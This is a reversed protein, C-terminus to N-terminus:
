EWNGENNTAETLSGVKIGDFNTIKEREDIYNIILQQDLGNLITDFLAYAEFVKVKVGSATAVEGAGLTFKSKDTFPIYTIEEVSYDKIKWLSDKVSRKSTSTKILGLKLGEEESYVDPDYGPLFDKKVLEFSDQKVFKILKDFNDAYEGYKDKFAVQVTRIDKLREIVAEERIKRQKNFRIPNMISEVILYGLVVIVIALIIQMILKSKPYKNVITNTFLGALVAFVVILILYILM